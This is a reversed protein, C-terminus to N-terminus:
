RQSNLDAIVSQLSDIKQQLMEARTKTLVSRAAEFPSLQRTKMQPGDNQLIDIVSQLSDITAARRALRVEMLIKQADLDEPLDDKASSSTRRSKKPADNARGGDSQSAANPEQRDGDRPQRVPTWSSSTGVLQGTSGTLKNSRILIGDTQRVYEYRHMWLFLLGLCVAGIALIQKWNM